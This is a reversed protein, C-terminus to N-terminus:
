PRHRARAYDRRVRQIMDYDIRWGSHPARERHEDIEKMALFMVHVLWRKRARAKHRKQRRRRGHRNTM